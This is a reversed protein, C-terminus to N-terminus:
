QIPAGSGTPIITLNAFSGGSNNGVWLAVGGKTTNNLKEIELSPKAADNVYASVKKGEVIIKVHFWGDPDPVPNVKNEYKGPFTERLKEWPYDPMAIYQVARGRRATDPNTFNFPRFYVAEYTKEDKGHFAFGVFSQQVVNKGKVDFEIVGNSFDIGKLIMYGDGEKENFRITKKGNENVAEVSRNFVTWRSIDQLDPKVMQAQAPLAMYLTLSLLCFNLLIHKM